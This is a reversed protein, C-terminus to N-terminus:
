PISGMELLVLVAFGYLSVCLSVIMAIKNQRKIKKLEEAFKKM